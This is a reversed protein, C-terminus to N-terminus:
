PIVPLQSLLLYVCIVYYVTHAHFVTLIGFMLFVKRINLEWGGEPCGCNMPPHVRCPTLLMDPHGKPPPGNKICVPFQQTHFVWCHQLEQCLLRADVVM